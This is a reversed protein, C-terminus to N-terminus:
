LSGETSGMSSMEIVPEQPQLLGKASTCAHSSELRRARRILLLLRARDVGDGVGLTELVPESDMAESDMRLLDQGTM